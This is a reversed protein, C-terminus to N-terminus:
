NAAMEGEHLRDMELAWGTRWWAARHDAYPAHCPSGSRAAASGQDMIESPWIEHEMKMEAIM